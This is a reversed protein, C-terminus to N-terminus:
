VADAAARPVLRLRQTVRRETALAVAVIGRREPLGAARELARMQRESEVALDRAMREAEFFYGALTGDGGEEEFVRVISALMGALGHATVALRAARRSPLSAISKVVRSRRAVRTSLDHAM